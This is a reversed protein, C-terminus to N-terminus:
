DDGEDTPINNSDINSFKSINMDFWLKFQTTRGYRNKAIIVDTADGIGGYENELKETERKNRYYSARYLFMVMDADQEIGGSERLDSLIPKKNERKEVERSLQSLAIIPVQLELALTKLARSIKSVEVQRNDGAKEGLNILQLYDIVILDIPNVKNLRRCKWLLTNLDSSASYDIFLNMPDIRKEKVANIKMMEDESLSQPRALKASDIGSVCSYIRGMLQTASMELSFFVVRKGRQAINTAINLAFATKGMAPRAALIILHNKQLGQTLDDFIKYGTPIGTMENPDRNWRLSLDHYYEESAKSATVFDMTVQNRDLNLLMNQMDQVIESDSIATNSNLKNQVLTVTRQIARLKTNRALEEIYTQINESFGGHNYIDTLFVNNIDNSYHKQKALILISDPNIVKNSEYLERFIEFLKRTEILSFDEAMLYPIVESAKSNDALVIGLLSKEFEVNSHPIPGVPGGNNFNFNNSNRISM